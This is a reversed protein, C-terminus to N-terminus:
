DKKVPEDKKIVPPTFPVMESKPSAEKKIVPPTFRVEKEKNTKAAADKKLM